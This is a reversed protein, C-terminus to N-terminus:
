KTDQYTNGVKYDSVMPVDMAVANCMAHMLCNAEREIADEPASIVLEDHVSLLLRSGNRTKQFLLMAAKAQDAASGQILLNVGKYDFERYRGNIMKAPEMKVMRNGITRLPQGLKYRTRMTDQMSKLGPAVATTYADMLTRAMDYSVELMESIKKPGAGYLIAFSVGKSYTRSVERGSAETMMTAAYTHLDARADKQYQQMLNGGEFHAFIRLEQANFDCAVLKHGEDALIFSRILPLPAVPLDNPLQVKPYRIPANQFNPTSSLRGTRTGGREGRVSNWNTYIRGTSASAELWPEIFTSLCTSLNARYRLVDKLELHTLIEGLTEKDAKPAGKDTTPWGKTKDWFDTPYISDVLQADSDINLEPSNLLARVWADCLALDKIAQLKAKHLGDRDVRVGLRSNELLMPILELERLYPEKQEPLVKDVLFDYLESTLRVDAVAYRGVLDVPGRCIYAGWTSKKKKAEPVNAIIWEKLEDREEPKVGLWDVVLEKLAFSRVHPDHLFAMILTDHLLTAQPIALGFHTEIVDLDFMANHFCMTRGSAYISTLLAAVKEKTTNNGVAHGFAHYGNAFTDLPDYVALGVPVPPYKPRPAIGETEFDLFVPPQM